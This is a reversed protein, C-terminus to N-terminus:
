GGIKELENELKKIDNLLKKKYFSSIINNNMLDLIDYLTKLKKEIEKKM